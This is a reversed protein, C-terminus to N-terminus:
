RSRRVPPLYRAAFYGIILSVGLIGMPPLQRPWRSVGFLRDRVIGYLLVSGIACVLLLLYRGFGIRAMARGNIFPVVLGALIALSVVAMNM